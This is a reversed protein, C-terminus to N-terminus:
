VNAMLAIKSVFLTFSQVLIFMNVVDPNPACNIPGM